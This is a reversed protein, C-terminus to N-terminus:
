QSRINRTSSRIMLKTSPLVKDTYAADEQKEIMRILTRCAEKGVEYVPHQITTLPPSTNAAFYLDDFGVVSVDEPVRLGITQLLRMIRIAEQDMGAFIATPRPEQGMVRELHLQLDMDSMAMTHNLSGPHKVLGSERLAQEGGQLRMQHDHYKQSPLLLLIQAHGYEVLHRVAQYGGGLNDAEVHGIPFADFPRSISVMPLKHALKAMYSDEMTLLLFIGGDIKRQQCFKLLEQEKRPIRNTSVLTITYDEDFAVEGIGSLVSSYYPTSMPHSEGMPAFVAINKLSTVSVKPKFNNDQIIKLVKERTAQGVDQKGNIVKSVTAISVNAQKAIEYINM